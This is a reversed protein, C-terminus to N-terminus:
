GEEVEKRKALHGTANCLLVWCSLDLQTEHRPDLIIDFQLHEEMMCANGLEVSAMTLTNQSSKTRIKGRFVGSFLEWLGMLLLRFRLEGPRCLCLGVSSGLAFNLSM